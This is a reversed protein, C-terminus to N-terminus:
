ISLNTDMGFKLAISANRMKVWNKPTLGENQLSDINQEKENLNLNEADLNTKLCFKLGNPTNRM